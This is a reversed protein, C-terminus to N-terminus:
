IHKTVQWLHLQKNKTEDCFLDIPVQSRFRLTEHKNNFDCLGQCIVQLYAFIKDNQKTNQNRETTM